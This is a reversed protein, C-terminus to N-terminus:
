SVLGAVAFAIAAEVGGAVATQFATRLSSMGTLKGNVVGFVLLTGLAVAISVIFARHIFSMIMYLLLPVLATLFYFDCVPM